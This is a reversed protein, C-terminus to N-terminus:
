IAGIYASIGDNDTDIWNPDPGTKATFANTELVLNETLDQNFLSIFYDLEKADIPMLVQPGVIQDFDEVTINRDTKTEPWVVEYDNVDGPEDVDELLVNDVEEDYSQYKLIQHRHLM